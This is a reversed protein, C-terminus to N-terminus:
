LLRGAEKLPEAAEAYRGLRTYVHGLNGPAPAAEADLRIAQRYAEVAEEFRGARTLNNGREIYIEAGDKQRPSEQLANSGEGARAAAMVSLLVVVLATLSFGGKFRRPRLRSM